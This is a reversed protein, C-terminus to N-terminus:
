VGAGKGKGKRKRKRLSRVVPILVFIAFMSLPGIFMLGPGLLV